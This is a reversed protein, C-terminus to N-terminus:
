GSDLRTDPGVLVMGNPASAAPTVSSIAAAKGGTAIMPDVYPLPDYPEIGVVVDDPGCGILLSLAIMPRPRTKKVHPTGDGVVRQVIVPTLGPVVDLSYSGIEYHGLPLFGDFAGTEDLQAAACAIAARLYPAFPAVDATLLIPTPEVRRVIVRGYQERYGAMIEHTVAEPGALAIVRLLRQYTGWADGLARSAEAGLEHTSVVSSGGLREIERYARYVGEWANRRALDVLERELRVREAADRDAIASPDAPTEARAPTGLLALLVAIM